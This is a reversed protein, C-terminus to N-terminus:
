DEPYVHPPKMFGNTSSKVNEETETEKVARERGSVLNLYFAVFCPSRFFTNICLKANETERAEEHKTHIKHVESNINFFYEMVQEEKFVENIPYFGCNRIYGLHRLNREIEETWRGHYKVPISGSAEKVDYADSGLSFM